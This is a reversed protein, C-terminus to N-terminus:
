SEYTMNEEPVFKDRLHSFREKFKPSNLVDRREKIISEPSPKGKLTKFDIIINIGIERAVKTLYIWSQFSDRTNKLRDDEELVKEISDILTM